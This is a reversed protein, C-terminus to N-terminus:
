DVSAISVATDHFVGGGNPYGPEASILANVGVGEEFASNPWISEMIVVGRQVGDFAKAQVVVDGCKSTMRIKQGDALTTAQLDDPHILVTPKKEYKVSTPTETFTTNLFQRAPAAVLRYPYKASSADVVEWHDPLAPMNHHNPGVRSWDPAFHFKKDPTDFGNLFNCDEFDPAVDVWHEAHLKTADPFGSTKLTRDCLDWETMTFGVHEIGLREALQCLVQHNSRCQDFPEVIKKTMQVHTHGGAIYLDDHELFMTAPLVVDAFRATDTM